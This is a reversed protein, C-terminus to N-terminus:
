RTRRLRPREVSSTFLLGLVLVTSVAGAGGILGLMPREISGTGPDRPPREMVDGSQPDAGLALAPSGDTLLNIWLLQVAPLV